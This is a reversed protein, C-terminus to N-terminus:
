LILFAALTMVISNVHIGLKRIGIRLCICLAIPVRRKKAAHNKGSTLAIYIM